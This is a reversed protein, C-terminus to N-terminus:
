DSLLVASFCYEVTGDQCLVHEKAKTAMCLVAEEKLFLVMAGVTIRIGLLFNHLVWFNGCSLRTTVACHYCTLWCYRISVPGQKFGKAVNLCDSAFIQMAINIYKM